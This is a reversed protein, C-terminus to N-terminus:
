VRGGLVLEIKSVASAVSEREDEPFGQRECEGDPPRCVGRDRIKYDCIDCGHLGAKRSERMAVLVARWAIMNLIHARAIMLEKRTPKTMVKEKEKVVIKDYM